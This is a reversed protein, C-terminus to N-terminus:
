CTLVRSDLRRNVHEGEFAGGFGARAACPRVVVVVREVALLVCSADQPSVKRRCITAPERIRLSACPRFTGWM